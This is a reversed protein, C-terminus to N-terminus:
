EQLSSKLYNIVEVPFPDVGNEEALYYSVWDTLYILYFIQELFSNGKASIHTISDTHKNFITECIEMRRSVREHDYDSHFLLIHTKSLIEKPMHWGVLENHNMEPFVAVHCLQKANENIQQQFRILMPELIADAYLIPFKDKLSVALQKAETKIEENNTNLSAVTEQIEKEFDIEVLGYHNLLLLLSTASYALHARPCAALAKLPVLDFGKQNAIKEVKGGSTICAIYAGKRQAEELSALTEETNGSFSSAIFLTNENIYSPLNYTKCVQYPINLLSRTLTQVLNGGIGSGGLGVVVINTIKRDTKDFSSLSLKQFDSYADELQQPFSSILENMM